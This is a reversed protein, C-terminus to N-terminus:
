FYDDASALLVEADRQALVNALTLDPARPDAALVEALLRDHLERDFVLRAYQEAFLVKATLHAGGSLEIAREFHARGDEPRGGLAPPVLTDLVGLYIHAAGQEFGEDLELTRDLLVRVRALEAVANWDESHSQVYSAWASALGFLAGVDENDAVWAEFADFDRERLDCAEADEACEAALALSLARRQLRAARDPAEVFNGGFASTLTAAARLMAPDEPNDAVLGDILLLYAPIAAAVTEPDDSNLIAGTLSDALGSAASSVVSACGSLQLLLVLAFAPLFPRSILALGISKSPPLILALATNLWGRDPLTM